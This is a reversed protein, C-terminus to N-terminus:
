FSNLMLMLVQHSSVERTVGTDPWTTYYNTSLDYDGWCDRSTASNECSARKAPAVEVDLAPIVSATARHTFIAALAFISFKM